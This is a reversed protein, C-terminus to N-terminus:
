DISFPVFIDNPLHAGSLSKVRTTITLTYTEKPTYEELPRIEIYNDIMNYIIKCNFLNGDPTTVFMTTNNVSRADLESNFKIKWAFNYTKAALHERVFTSEPLDSRDFNIFKSM